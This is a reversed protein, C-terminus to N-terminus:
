TLNFDFDLGQQCNSAPIKKHTIKVTSGRDQV